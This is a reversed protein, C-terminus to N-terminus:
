SCRRESRWARLRERVDPDHDRWDYRHGWCYHCHLRSCLTILNDPDLELEPYVHYPLM